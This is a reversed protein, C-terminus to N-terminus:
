FEIEAIQKNESTQKKQNYFFDITRPLISEIRSIGSKKIIKM